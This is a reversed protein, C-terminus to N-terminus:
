RNDESDVNLEQLKKNIESINKKCIKYQVNWSIIYGILYSVSVSLFTIRYKGLGWCVVAVPMWVATTVIFYVVSQKILSWHAIEFIVSGAGFAMSTIGILLCQIAFAVTGSPFRAAFEPLVPIFDLKDVLYMLVVGIILNITTGYAFGTIGRALATKIGNM